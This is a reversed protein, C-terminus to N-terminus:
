DEGFNVIVTGAPVLISNGDTDVSVVTEFFMVMCWGTDHDVYKLSTDSPMGFEENYESPVPTFSEEGLITLIAEEIATTNNKGTWVMILEGDYDYGRYGQINTLSSFNKGALGVSALVTNNPPGDSLQELLEEFEEYSGGSDNDCAAAFVLLAAFCLVLISYTKKMM